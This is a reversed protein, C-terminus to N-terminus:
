GKANEYSELILNDIQKKMSRTMDLINKYETRGERQFSQSPHAVWLKEDKGLLIRFGQVTLEWISVKFSVDVFARLDGKEVLKIDVSISDDM